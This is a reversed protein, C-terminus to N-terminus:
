NNFGAKLCINNCIFHWNPYIENERLIKRQLSNLILQFSDIRLQLRMGSFFGRKASANRYKATENRYFVELDEEEESESM